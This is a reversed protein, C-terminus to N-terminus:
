TRTEDLFIIAYRAGNRSASIQSSLLSNTRIKRLSPSLKSFTLFRGRSSAPLPARAPGVRSRGRLEGSTFTAPIPGRCPSIVLRSMSLSYLGSLSRAFLREGNVSVALCAWYDSNGCIISSNRNISPCRAFRIEDLQNLLSSTKASSSAARGDGTCRKQPSASPPPKLQQSRSHTDKRPSSNRNSM